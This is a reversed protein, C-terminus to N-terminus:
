KQIKVTNLGERERGTNLGERERDKALMESAPEKGAGIMRKSQAAPTSSSAQPLAESKFTGPPALVRVTSGDYSRYVVQRLM